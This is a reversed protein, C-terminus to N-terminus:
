ACSVAGALSLWVLPCGVFAGRVWGCAIAPLGARVPADEEEEESSSIGPPAPGATRLGGPVGLRVPGGLGGPVGLM